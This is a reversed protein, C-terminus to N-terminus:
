SRKRDRRRRIVWTIVGAAAAITAPGVYVLIGGVDPM